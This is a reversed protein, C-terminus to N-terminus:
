GRSQHGPPSVGQFDLDLIRHYSAFGAKTIARQAAINDRETSCIPSLGKETTIEILKLLMQTALGRRRHNTSVIMGVDAFSPYNISPRCEGTAIIQGEQWLGFLKEGAILDTFYGTLWTRDAGLTAVAFDVAQALADLPIPLFTMDDPFAGNEPTRGKPVHYMLANVQTTKCHDLAHTLLMPEATSVVAGRIATEALFQSFVVTPEVHEAVYFQLLKQDSNVAGYGILANNHAIAYHDAFGAFAQWMGDLPAIAAQAYAHTFATLAGPETKTITYQSM